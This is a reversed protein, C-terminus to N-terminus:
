EPIEEVKLRISKSNINMFAFIIGFIIQFFTSLYFLVPGQKFNTVVAINKLVAMIEYIILMVLFLNIAINQSIYNVFENIIIITILFHLLSNLVLLQDRNLPLLIILSILVVLVVILLMKNKMALLSYLFLLTFVPYM